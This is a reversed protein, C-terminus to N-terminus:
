TAHPNYYRGVLLAQKCNSPYLRWFDYMLATQTNQTGAIGVAFSLIELASYMAAIESKAMAPASAAQNLAQYSRIADGMLKGAIIEISHCLRRFELLLVGQDLDQVPTQVAKALAFLDHINRKATKIDPTLLKHQRSMFDGLEDLKKEIILQAIFDRHDLPDIVCGKELPANVKTSDDNPTSANLDHSSM